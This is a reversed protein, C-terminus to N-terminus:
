KGRKWVNCCFKWGGWLVNEMMMIKRQYVDLQYVIQRRGEARLCLSFPFAVGYVLVTRRVSVLGVRTRILLLTSGIMWFRQHKSWNHISPTVLNSFFMIKRRMVLKILGLIEWLFIGQGQIKCMGWTMTLTGCTLDTTTRIAAMGLKTWKRWFM